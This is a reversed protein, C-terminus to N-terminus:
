YSFLSRTGVAERRPVDFPQTSFELGRSMKQTPPYNGWTQLWPYDARRFLYGLMLRRKPNLATVWAMERAPDM